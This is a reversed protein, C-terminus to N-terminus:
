DAASPCCAEPVQAAGFLPSQWDGRLIDDQIDDQGAYRCAAFWLWRCPIKRLAAPLGIVLRGCTVLRGWLFFRRLKRNSLHITTCLTLGSVLAKPAPNQSSSRAPRNSIPRLNAVLTPLRGLMAQAAQKRYHLITWGSRFIECNGANATGMTLPLRNRAATAALSPVKIGTAPTSM